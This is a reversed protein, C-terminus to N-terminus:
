IKGSTFLLKHYYYIIDIRANILQQEAELRSNAADLMDTILAMGEGFRTETVRYNREALEVSKQRSKLEEYAELYRIHDARVEMTLNERTAELQESAKCSAIKRRSLTKNSKYLSSLQYSVGVGVYWYSLNRNIPPVEVLIPGDLTWGAQLSIKPLRESRAMKEATRSLELDNSALRLTPSFQQAEGQWWGEGQTPLSRSLITSDPVISINHDLGATTVLTSNLIRLLNDVKVKQLELNSLLLEYRTIDNQLAIGQEKRERMQALVIEAASINQELVSRINTYKYIDLYFGTLAMRINNRRIDALYRAATSKLESMEIASTIAGGTYVPQDVGLSLGTGLHPIPAKAYDSYNRATTFGDGIYSVSMNVNINPLRETRAEAMAKEAEQVATIAPKLQASNAEASEFIEELTMVHPEQPYLTGSWLASALVVALLRHNNM